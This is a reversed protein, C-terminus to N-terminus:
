FTQSQRCLRVLTYGVLWDDSSIWQMDRERCPPNRFEDHYSASRIILASKVKVIGSQGQLTAAGRRHLVRCHHQTECWVYISGTVRNDLM